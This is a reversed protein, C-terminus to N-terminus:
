KFVRTHHPNRVQAMPSRPGTAPIENVWKRAPFDDFCARTTTSEEVVEVWGRKPHLRWGFVGGRAGGVAARRNTWVFYGHEDHGAIMAPKLHFGNYVQRKVAKFAFM